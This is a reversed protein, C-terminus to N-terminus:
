LFTLGLEDEDAAGQAFASLLEGPIARGACTEYLSAASNSILEHKEQEFAYGSSALMLILM